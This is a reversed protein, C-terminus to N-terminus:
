VLLEPLMSHCHDFVNEVGFACFPLGLIWSNMPNWSAGTPNPPQLLTSCWFWSINFQNEHTANRSTRTQNIFNYMRQADERADSAYSHGTSDGPTRRLWEVPCNGCVAKSAACWFFNKVKWSLLPYCFLWPAWLAHFRMFICSNYSNNMWLMKWTKWIREVPNLHISNKDHRRLGPLRIKSLYSRVRSCIILLRPSSVLTEWLFLFGLPDVEVRFWSDVAFPAGCQVEYVKPGDGTPNCPLM